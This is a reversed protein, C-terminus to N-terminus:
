GEGIPWTHVPRGGCSHRRYLRVLERLADDRRFGHDQVLARCTAIQWGAGTTGSVARAEVIGLYRDVDAADVGCRALGERALPLLHRLLLETVPVQPGVRPWYLRAGLGHRAAAYFNDAAAAFSMEEWPHPRPLSVLGHLLGYFFAANAVSDAVTPGAPLVRNEIRMHPRGDVVEYVPRNWRYITGNHLTLEPLHPVEGAAVLAAPDEDDCLPLLAPFYRVNEDFLDWLGEGDDLWDEGFWVRPRVGQRALEETRTEVTQEFLAIRTEHHLQRGLFFPSNAGVAVLPASLLQAANWYLGFDHPDVQLHLQMSTCAAEFLITDARAELSEAGDIAISVDEGRSALIMDNLAQYRTNASLNAAVFDSRALTPLIGVIMVAADIGAAADGALDLSRRMDAGLSDLVDGTLPRPALDFEITFRALETEFGASGIRELLEANRPAASGALDTVVVEVEVGCTRRGTEFCGRDVLSRLAALDAKVKARFRTRDERTFESTEIDRGM